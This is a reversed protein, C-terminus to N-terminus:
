KQLQQKLCEYKRSNEYSADKLSTVTEFHVTVDLIYAQRTNTIVLDPKLVGGEELDFTQEEYVTSNRELEKALLRVMDNHRSVQTGKGSTCKGLVHGLTETKERCRRCNVDLHAYGARKLAKRTGYTNTRM